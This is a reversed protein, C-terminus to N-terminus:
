PFLATECVRATLEAARLVLSVLAGIWFFAPLVAM